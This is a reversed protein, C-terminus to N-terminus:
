GLTYWFFNAFVYQFFEFSCSCFPRLVIVFLALFPSIEISKWFSCRTRNRHCIAWHWSGDWAISSTIRSDASKDTKKWLELVSLRLIEVLSGSKKINFRDDSTIGLAFSMREWDAGNVAACARFLHDSVLEKDAPFLGLVFFYYYFNSSFTEAYRSRLTEWTCNDGLRQCLM